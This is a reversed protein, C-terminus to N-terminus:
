YRVTYGVSVQFAQNLIAPDGDKSDFVEDTGMEYRFDFNLGNAYLGLGFAYSLDHKAPSQNIVFDETWENGKDDVVHIEGTYDEYILTNSVLGIDFHFYSERDGMKFQFMLPVAFYGLKQEIYVEGRYIGMYDDVQYSFASGKGSYLFETQLAIKRTISYNVVAGGLFKVKPEPIFGDMGVGTLNTSAGGLKGGFSFQGFASGISLSLLVFVFCIKTTM